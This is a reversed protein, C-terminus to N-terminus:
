VHARGIEAVRVSIDDLSVGTLKSGTELYTQFAQATQEADIHVIGFEPVGLSNIDAAFVM